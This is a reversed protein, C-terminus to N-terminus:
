ALKLLVVIVTVSTRPYTTRQHEAPEEPNLPVRLLVGNAAWAAASFAMRADISRPIFCASTIVLPGPGPLSVARRAIRLLPIVRLKTRSTVGM